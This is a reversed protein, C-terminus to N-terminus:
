KKREFMPKMSDLVADWIKLKEDLNSNLTDMTIVIRPSEGSNVKGNFEWAFSLTDEDKATMRLVEEEGNLDAVTRKHSRIKKIQVGSAYGTAIADITKEILGAKEVSYTENMRIKLTLNLPHEEFRVDSSEQWLYPLNIAGYKLYFWDSNPKQSISDMLHYSKGINSINNIANNTKNEDEVLGPPNDKIWVGVPGADLLLAWTATRPRGFYDYYFVAKAWKGVGSIDRMRIIVSDKGKPPALTKIKSMFKNWETERAREHSIEAPWMIENIEEERLKHSRSMLKMEKPIGFSFRGIHYTEMSKNAGKEANATKDCGQVFPCAMLIFLLTPKIWKQNSLFLKAYVEM